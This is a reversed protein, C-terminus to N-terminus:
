SFSSGCKHEWKQYKCFMNGKQEMPFLFFGVKVHIDGSHAYVHKITVYIAMFIGWRFSPWEVEIMTSPGASHWWWEIGSYRVWDVGVAAIQILLCVYFILRTDVTNFSNQTWTEVASSERAQCQFGWTSKFSSWIQLNKTTTFHIAGNDISIFCLLKWRNHHRDDALTTTTEINM